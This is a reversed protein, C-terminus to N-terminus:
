HHQRRIQQLCECDNAGVTLDHCAAIAVSCPIIQTLLPIIQILFPLIPILLPFVQLRIQGRFLALISFLPVFQDM